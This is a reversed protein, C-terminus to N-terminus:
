DLSRRKVAFEADAAARNIEPIDGAPKLKMLAQLDRRKGRDGVLEAAAVFRALSPNQAFWAIVLRGARDDADVREVFDDWWRSLHARRHRPDIQEISDLEALLEEDAPFWRQTM